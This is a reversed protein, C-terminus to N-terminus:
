AQKFAEVHAQYEKSGIKLQLRAMQRRINNVVIGRRKWNAVRQIAGPAGLVGLMEEVKKLGGLLDIVHMETNM